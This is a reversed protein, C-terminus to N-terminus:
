AATPTKSMPRQKLSTVMTVGNLTRLSISSSWFVAKATRTPLMNRPIAIMMAADILPQRGQACRQGDVARSAPCVRRDLRRPHRGEDAAATADHHVALAFEELCALLGDQSRWHGVDLHARGSADQPSLHPDETPNSQLM